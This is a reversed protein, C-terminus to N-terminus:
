PARGARGREKVGALRQTSEAPDLTRKRWRTLSAMPARSATPAAYSSGPSKHPFLSGPRRRRSSADASRQIDMRENAADATAACRGPVGATCGPRSRARGAPGRATDHIRNCPLTVVANCTTRADACGAGQDLLARNPLACHQRLRAIDQQAGLGSAREATDYKPPTCRCTEPQHPSRQVRDLSRLGVAPRSGQWRMPICAARCPSVSRTLPMPCYQWRPLVPGARPIPAGRRREGTWWRCKRAHQERGSTPIV